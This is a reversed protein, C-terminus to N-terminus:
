CRIAAAIAASTSTDAIKAADPLEVIKWLRWHPENRNRV